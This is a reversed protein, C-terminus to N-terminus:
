TLSGLQSAQLQGALGQALFFKRSVSLVETPGCLSLIHLALLVFPSLKSLLLFSHSLDVALPRDPAAERWRLTECM